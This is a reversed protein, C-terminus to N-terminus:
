PIRRVPSPTSVPLSRGALPAPGFCTLRRPALFILDDRPLPINDRTTTWSGDDNVRAKLMRRPRAYLMRTVRRIRATYLMAARCGARPGACHRSGLGAFLLAPLAPLGPLGLFPTSGQVGVSGGAHISLRQQEPDYQGALFSCCTRGALFRRSEARPMRHENPRRQRRRRRTTVPKKGAPGHRDHHM